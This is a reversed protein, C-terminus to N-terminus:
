DFTLVQEKLNNTKYDDEWKITIVPSTVMNETLMAYMEFSQGSHLIPFPLKKDENIIIGCDDEYIVGWDIEINKAPSEGKNYVRIGWGRETQYGKLGVMAKKSNQIKSNNLTIEQKRLKNDTFFSKILAVLAIVMSGLAIYDSTSINKLFEM